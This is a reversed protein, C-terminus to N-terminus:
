SRRTMVQPLQFSDAPVRFLVGEPPHAVPATLRCDPTSALALVEGSFGGGLASWRNSEPDWVAINNAVVDGAVSFLGGIVLRPALPGAGDSDWLVSAKITGDTGRLGDGPLWQPDCQAAARGGLFSAHAILVVLVSWAFSSSRM